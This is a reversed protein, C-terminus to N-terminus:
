NKTQGFRERFHITHTPNMLVRMPPRCAKISEEQLNRMIICDELTMVKPENKKITEILLVKIKDLEQQIDM